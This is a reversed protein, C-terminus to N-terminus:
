KPQNNHRVKRKTQAQNTQQSSTSKVKYKSTTQKTINNHVKPKTLKNSQASQTTQTQPQRM